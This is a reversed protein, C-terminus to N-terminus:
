KEFAGKYRKRMTRIALLVAIGALVVAAVAAVPLLLKESLRARSEKRM